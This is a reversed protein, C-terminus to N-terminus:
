LPWIWLITPVACLVVLISLPLGLRWYDGFRYGGPAMVLTNSQHGIPTLFACSAGIAVAMLFPDVSADMGRALSIAVPAALVAAAANNVVNSILMVAVMLLALTAAAPLSQGVSLLADAILQSGGSTELAQGVPLMAAVLVIVPMDISEYIRGVPILGVLIMVLAGTVLATAAPLLGFAITALTIAFVASALLVNRPTTISLGRSALPLCGLNNLTSQLADERTQLLLIDGTAFRIKGLRQRLRQGQRAVALVNVGHRERLDLGSATTGVLISGPSIIAEALTLEGHRSKHSKRAKEQEVIQETTDREERAEDDHEDVNAALEVGTVDLLAKLSDSDAEVLLIDGERLVEYTSPMRQREDGRVLAIVQVDAEDKVANILAHLTRGAYKCSEPVRVETLYASIEFLDGNGEQEQRRPVLRWGLLAIFLVGAVTVAAGVPLFAFMGFPAEGAEARYGAIILNPPTGILTLTGGLLSGFALPMLLYSPSRGSQRSMWIAVPMFLALAGVNNMFGSSLAVIGTLAAVQAWPRDGVQMLRRAVSDVVGANLLGRSLVLVAAVSIVAPHGIGAFVEDAPVVGTLACALLAGLAVLDYRWRNWVFLVLTAALVGFVILQEGTM